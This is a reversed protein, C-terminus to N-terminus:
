PIDPCEYSPRSRGRAPVTSTHDQSIKYGTNLLEFLGTEQGGPRGDWSGLLTWKRLHAERRGNGLVLGHAERQAQPTAAGRVALTFTRAHQLLAACGRSSRSQWCVASMKQAGRCWTEASARVGGWGSDGVRRHRRQLCPCPCRCPCPCPCRCPCPSRCPCPCPCSCTPRRGTATDRGLLVRAGYLRHRPTIQSYKPHTQSANSHYIRCSRGTIARAM